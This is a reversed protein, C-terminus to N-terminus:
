WPTLMEPIFESVGFSCSVRVEAGRHMMVLAHQDRAAGREALAKFAAALPVRPTLIVFEEGGYRCVHDEKRCCSVLVNAVNRLVRDGFPHGHTDNVSKFWDIDAMIISLASGYRNSLSTEQALRHDFYTRNWLGTVGDIMAKRALLDSIYKARLGARVRARLEASQFPKTVYDIAGLDLGTVKETTTTRKTLFVVPIGATAELSKLQRCTEFGDPPPMESM